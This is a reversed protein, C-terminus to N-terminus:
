LILLRFLAFSYNEGIEVAAICLIEIGLAAAYLSKVNRFFAIVKSGEKKQDIKHIGICCCIDKTCNICRGMGRDNICELAACQCEACKIM